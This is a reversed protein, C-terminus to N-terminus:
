VVPAAPIPPFQPFGPLVGPRPGGGAEDQVIERVEDEVFNLLSVRFRIKLDSHLALDFM